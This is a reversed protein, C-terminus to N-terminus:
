RFMETVMVKSDTQIGVAFYHGDPSWACHKVAGEFNQFEFPKRYLQERNQSAGRRGGQTM